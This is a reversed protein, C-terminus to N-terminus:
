VRRKDQMYGNGTAYNRAHRNDAGYEGVEVAPLSCEGAQASQRLLGAARLMDDNDVVAACIVGGQRRCALEGLM